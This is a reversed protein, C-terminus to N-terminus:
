LMAVLRNRREGRAERPLPHQVGPSPGRRRPRDLVPASSQRTRRQEGALRSEGLRAGWQHGPVEADVVDPRRDDVEARRDLLPGQSSDEGTVLDPTLAEALRIGAAVQRRQARSRHATAVDVDDVPLLHPRGVAHLGGM